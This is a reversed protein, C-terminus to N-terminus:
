LLHNKPSGFLDKITVVGDVVDSYASEKIGHAAIMALFIQKQMKTAKRFVIEKHRLNQAYEKTILYPAENYKIECLTCAKDTRDFLLDIQAGTETPENSSYSWSYAYSGEPINLAMRIRDLHKYCVAEFAYGAWAYWAPTKYVGKWFPNHREIKSFSQKQPEIWQLYFLSYEDIVKYFLERPNPKIPRFSLIFGADELSKLKDSLSGGKHSLKCQNELRSRSIGYRAKAIIRIIEVYAAANKFLSTFLKDFEEFLLGKRDFCLQNINQMASFTKKVANLYYPVGGIAMYLELLQEEKYRVGMKQLYLQTEALSFTNLIIQRTVRNHLGGKNYIIKRIIWSASSGCV